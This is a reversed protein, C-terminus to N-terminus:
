FPPARHPLGAVGVSTRKLIIHRIPPERRRVATKSDAERHMKRAFVLNKAQPHLRIKQAGM